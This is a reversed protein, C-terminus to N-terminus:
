QAHAEIDRRLEERLQRNENRLEDNDEKLKGNEEVVLELRKSLEVDRGSEPLIASGTPGRAKIKQPADLEFKQSIKRTVLIWTDVNNEIAPWKKKLYNDFGLSPIKLLLGFEEADLKLELLQAMDKEDTNALIKGNLVNRNKFETLRNVVESEVMKKKGKNTNQSTTTAKTPKATTKKVSSKKVKLSSGPEDEEDLEVITEAALVQKRIRKASRSEHAKMKNKGVDSLPFDDEDSDVEEDGESESDDHGESEEEEEEEDDEEEEEEEM